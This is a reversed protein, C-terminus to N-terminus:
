STKAVAVAASVAEDFPTAPFSPGTIQQTAGADTEAAAAQQKIALSERYQRAEAVKTFQVTLGKQKAFVEIEDVTAEFFEKRMNIRNLRRDSLLTHLENELEPANESFMMAHVDFPFPVSADGLEAIREEPDLRRTMGIKVVKDGFSGINSIVYVNGSKTL